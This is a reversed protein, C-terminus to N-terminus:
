SLTEIKQKPRDTGKVRQEFCSDLPTAPPFVTGDGGQKRPELITTVLYQTGPYLKSLRTMAVTNVWWAPLGLNPEQAIDHFDGM